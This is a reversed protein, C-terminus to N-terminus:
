KGKPKEYVIYDDCQRPAKLYAFLAIILIWNIVVVKIIM